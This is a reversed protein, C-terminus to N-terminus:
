AGATKAPVLKSYAYCGALVVLSGLVLFKNPSLTVAGACLLLGRIWWPIHRTIYGMWFYGFSFIAVIGSVVAWLNAGLSGQMLLGPDYCFAFPVIFALFGLKMAQFGIKNPNAGSISAAAFAALAVPPTINSIVAYYFVSRFLM